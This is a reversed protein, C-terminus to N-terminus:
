EQSRPQKTALRVPHGCGFKSGTLEDPHVDMLAEWEFEASTFAMSASVASSVASQAQTASSATVSTAAPQSV